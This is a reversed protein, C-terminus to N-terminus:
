HKHWPVPHWFFAQLLLSVLCLSSSPCHILKKCTNVYILLKGEHNFIFSSSQCSVTEASRKIYTAGGRCVTAISRDHCRPYVGSNRVFPSISITFFEGNFMSKYRLLSISLLSPSFLIGQCCFKYWALATVRCFFSGSSSCCSPLHYCRGNNVVDITVCCHISKTQQCIYVGHPPPPKLM